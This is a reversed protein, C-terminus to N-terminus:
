VVARDFMEFILHVRDAAGDNRVAHPVVNNLEYAHGVGLQFREGDVTFWVADNTILPVHIKHTLHNSVGVDIHPDIKGGAALRALMVKSFDPAALDYHAAVQRMVPELTERWRTWFDTAYYSEPGQGRSFRAIIHRTQRFCEFDNAKGANEAEWEGDAIGRVGDLLSGIDVACVERFTAPKVVPTRGSRLLEAMVALQKPTMAAKPKALNEQSM